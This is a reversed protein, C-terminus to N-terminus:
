VMTVLCAKTFDWYAVAGSKKVGYLHANHKFTHESGEGIVEMMPAEETQVLLPKQASDTRFIAFEDTWTLRPNVVLTKRIMSGPLPNKFGGALEGVTLASEAAAMLGVPVMIIVEKMSHNVPEGIDDKFGFLQQIGKQISLAIEGVSPNTVSGHTGTTDGTPLASIDVTIDNDMTGSDGVSHDTDFFFQGDYSTGLDSDDATDILASLLKEDHEAAREALQAIKIELQGTKDRKLDKRQVELTAEYDKNTVTQTYEALSKALRGGVWERLAPANGLGAYREVAVTSPFTVALKPVWSDSLKGEYAQFFLGIVEKDSIYEFQAANGM